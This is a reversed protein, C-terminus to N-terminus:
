IDKFLCTENSDSGWCLSAGYPVKVASCISVKPSFPLVADTECPETHINCLCRFDKDNEHPVTLLLCLAQDTFSLFWCIKDHFGTNVLWGKGQNAINNPSVWNRQGWKRGSYVILNSDFMELMRELKLFNTRSQFDSNSKM